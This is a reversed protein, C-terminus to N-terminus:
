PSCFRIGEPAWNKNTTFDQYTPFDSSFRHNPAGTQGNNYMRYIPTTGVPCVGGSPVAVYFAIAGGASHGVLHVRGLKMTQIFQYIHEVQGSYAYDPDTLPNGTLGSGLRDVALVHFRKALGPINRSWVNATSSGATMGGHILVMPEGQGEDYYRTAVGKV